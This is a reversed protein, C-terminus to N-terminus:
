FFIEANLPFRRTTAAMVVGRHLGYSGFWIWGVDPVDSKLTVRGNLGADELESEREREGERGGVRSSQICKLEAWIMFM